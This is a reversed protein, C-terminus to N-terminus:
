NNQDYRKLYKLAAKLVKKNELFGLIMNCKFCLLGRIKENSHNHDIVLYGFKSKKDTRCIACLGKQKKFMKEYDNETM